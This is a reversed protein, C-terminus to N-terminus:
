HKIQQKFVSCHGVPASPHSNRNAGPFNDLDTCPQISRCMHDDIRLAHQDARRKDVRVEMHIGRQAIPQWSDILRTSQKLANRQPAFKFRQQRLLRQDLTCQRIAIPSHAFSQQRDATMDIYAIRTQQGNLCQEFDLANDRRIKIQLQHSERLIAQQSPTVARELMQFVQLSREIHANIDNTANRVEFSAHSVAAPTNAHKALKRRM